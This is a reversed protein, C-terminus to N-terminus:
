RVGRCRSGALPVACWQPLATTITPLARGSVSRALWVVTLEGATVVSLIVLWLVRLAWWSGTGPEPQPLLGAPYAVLAVVVVPVMQWLYLAMVNASRRPSPVVCGRARGVRRTVAPAATILIAAQAASFALLALNPPFNNQAGAGPAGVMSIPYWRLGLLM